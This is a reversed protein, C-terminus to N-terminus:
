QYTVAKRPAAKKVKRHAASSAGGGNDNGVHSGGCVKSIGGRAM